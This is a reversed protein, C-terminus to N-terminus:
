PSTSEVTAISFTVDTFKNKKEGMEFTLLGGLESGLALPPVKVEDIINLTYRLMVLNVTISVTISKHWNYFNFQETFRHCYCSQRSM